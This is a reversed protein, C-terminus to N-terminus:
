QMITYGPLTTVNTRLQVKCEPQGSFKGHSWRIECFGSVECESGVERDKLRAIWDVQPQGLEPRAIVDFSRLTFRKRWTMADDVRCRVPVRGAQGLLWYRTGCVRTMQALMSMVTSTSAAQLSARWADATAISVAAAMQRYAARAAPPLERQWPKMAAKLLAKDSGTLQAPSNPLPAPLDNRELAVVLSRYFAHHEDAAVADYWNSYRSRTTGLLDQFVAGPARNLLCKSDYKASVNYVDNVLLDAPADSVWMTREGGRWEISSPDKNKLVQARFAAGNALAAGFVVHFQHWDQAASELHPRWQEEAVGPMDLVELLDAQEFADGLVMGAATALETVKTRESAM